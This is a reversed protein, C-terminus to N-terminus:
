NGGKENKPRDASILVKIADEVDKEGKEDLVRQSTLQTIAIELFLWNADSPKDACAKRALRLDTELDSDREASLFSAVRFNAGSRVTFNGDDSRAEDASPRRHHGPSDVQMVRSAPQGSCVGVEGFKERFEKARRVLRKLSKPDLLMRELEHREM